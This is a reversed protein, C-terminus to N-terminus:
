ASPTLHHRRQHHLLTRHNGNTEDLEDIWNLTRRRHVVHRNRQPQTAIQIDISQTRRQHIHHAAM